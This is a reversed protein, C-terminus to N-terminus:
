NRSRSAAPEFVVIVAPDGAPAVRPAAVNVTGAVRAFRYAPAGLAAIWATGLSTCYSVPM